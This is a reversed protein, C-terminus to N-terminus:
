LSVKMYQGKILCSLGCQNMLTVACSQLKKRLRNVVVKITEDLMDAQDPFVIDFLKDKAVAYGFSLTRWKELAM